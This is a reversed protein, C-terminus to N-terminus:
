TSLQQSSTDSESPPSCTSSDNSMETSQTPPQSQLNPNYGGILDFTPKTRLDPTNNPPTSSNPPVNGNDKFLSDTGTQSKTEEAMYLNSNPLFKQSPLKKFTSLCNFYFSPQFATCKYQQVIILVFKLM